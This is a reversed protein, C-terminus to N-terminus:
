KNFMTLGAPQNRITIKITLNILKLNTHSLCVFISQIYYHNRHIVFLLVTLKNKSNMNNTIIIHNTVYRYGSGRADFESLEYNNGHLPRGSHSATAGGSIEIDDLLCTYFFHM